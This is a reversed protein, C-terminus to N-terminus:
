TTSIVRRVRCHESVALHGHMALSQAKVERHALATVDAACIATIVNPRTEACRNGAAESIATVSESLNLVSEM